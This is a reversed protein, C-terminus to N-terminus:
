ALCRHVAKIVDGVDADTLKASLPLSVSRRGVSTANPYDETQWGYEREYYPHEPISLYHVGVGINQATMRDLFQDRGPEPREEGLLITYLHYAHRSNPAVPSPLTLPRDALADDYQQWIQRRREWYSGVRELQHIGMSAQVDTMNYKFGCEEVFYHKYGDESFRRWADRSM